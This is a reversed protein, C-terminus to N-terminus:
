IILFEQLYKATSIFFFRMNKLALFRPSRNNTKTLANASAVGIEACDGGEFFGATLAGLDSLCSLLASLSLVRSARGATEADFGCAGAAVGWASCVGAGITGAGIIVFFGAGSGGTSV